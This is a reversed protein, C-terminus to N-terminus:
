AVLGKRPARIAHVDFAEKIALRLAAAVAEHRGPMVRTSTRVTMTSNGFATIGDIQTQQLVDPNEARVQEGATSLTAFVNRLDADYPVDVLVVAVAYEKSYNIVEKIEGNRLIHLRGDGDRIRTTRFEIGEVTGKAHGTEITDGILYTDEFLIFFGSVVDNILSQAGFGIVVGLIGAGALFPMPNFGLSSLILVAVVFYGAYGFATKVLPAMTERRRRTIEDLGAPPLMRHGIELRGLEVVVRGLFFIGIAQIILPGWYAFRQVPGLQVVVLSALVIWLAYEVCVRFTPLLPRLHDHYRLLGRNEAYRRSLGDLTDVIVISGRIVTMGVLIVVYIRFALFVLQLLQDPLGFLWCAFAV